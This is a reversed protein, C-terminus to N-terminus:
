ACRQRADRSATSGVWGCSCHHGALSPARVALGVIEGAGGACRTVVEVVRGASRCTGDRWTETGVTGGERGAGGLAAGVAGGVVLGASGAVWGGGVEVDVGADRGSGERRAGEEVCGSALDNGARDRATERARGRDGRACCAVSCGVRREVESRGVGADRGGGHRCILTGVEGSALDNATRIQAASGALGADSDAGGTSSPLEDVLVLADEGGRNRRAETGVWDSTVDFGAGRRAACVTEGCDRDAVGARGEVSEVGRSVRASGFRSRWTEAHIGGGAGELLAVCTRATEETGGEVGRALLAVVGVPVRQRRALRLTHVQHLGHLDGDDGVRVLLVGYVGREEEDDGIEARVGGAVEGLEGQVDGLCLGQM